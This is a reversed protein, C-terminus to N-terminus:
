QWQCDQVWFKRGLQKINKSYKRFSPELGILPSIKLKLIKTTSNFFVFFFILTMKLVGGMHTTM